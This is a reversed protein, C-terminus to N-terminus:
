KAHTSKWNIGSGKLPYNKNKLAYEIGKVKIENFWEIYSQYAKEITEGNITEEKNDGNILIPIPSYEFPKDFFIQNILFLAELQLSYDRENKLYLQSVIPSYNSVGLVCLREDNKLKLLENIMEIKEEEDYESVYIPYEPLENASGVLRIKYYKDDISVSTSREQEIIEFYKEDNRDCSILIVLIFILMINKMIKIVM